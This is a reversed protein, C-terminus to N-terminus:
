EQEVERKIKNALEYLNSRLTSLRENVESIDKEQVEHGNIPHIVLDNFSGMGGFGGLLREVGRFNRQRIMNHNEELWKSWFFEKANELLSATEALATMLEDVDDAM